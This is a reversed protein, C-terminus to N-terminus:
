QEHDDRQGHGSKRERLALISRAVLLAAAVLNPQHFAHEDLGDAEAGLFDAGHHFASRGAPTVRATQRARAHSRARHNCTKKSTSIGSMFLAHDPRHHVHLAIPTPLARSESRLANSDIGSPRIL